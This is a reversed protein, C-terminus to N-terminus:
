WQEEATNQYHRTLLCASYVGLTSCFSIISGHQVSKLNFARRTAANRPVPFSVVGVDYLEYSCRNLQRPTKLCFIYQAEPLQCRSSMTTQARIRSDRGYYVVCQPVQAWSTLGPDYRFINAIAMLSEHPPSIPVRCGVRLRGVGASLTPPWSALRRARRIPEVDEPPYARVGWYFDVSSEIMTNKKLRIHIVCDGKTCMILALKWKVCRETAMNAAFAEKTCVNTVDMSTVRCRGVMCDAGAHERCLGARHVAKLCGRVRCNEKGGHIRCRNNVQERRTCGEMICQKVSGGGGHARCLGRSHASKDCSDVQCQTRGGHIRCRGKNQERRDCGEVLCLRGGEGGHARCLRTRQPYGPCGHVACQRLPSKASGTPASM